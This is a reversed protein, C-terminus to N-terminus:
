TTAEESPLTAEVAAPTWYRTVSDADRVEHWDECCHDCRLTFTAWQVARCRSYSLAVAKKCHPCLANKLPLNYKRHM